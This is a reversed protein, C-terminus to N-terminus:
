PPLATVVWQQQSTPIRSARSCSSLDGRNKSSRTVDSATAFPSCAVGGALHASREPPCHERALESDVPPSLDVTFLRVVSTPDQEANALEAYAGATDATSKSGKKARTPAPASERGREVAQAMEMQPEAAPPAPSAPVPAVEAKREAQARQSAGARRDQRRAEGTVTEELRVSPASQKSPEDAMAAADDDSVVDSLEAVELPSAQGASRGLERNRVLEPVFVVAVLAVAATLGAFEWSLFRFGRAPRKRTSEEFRARTRTYFGPSLEAPDDRLARGLEKSSEVRAALETDDRLLAEFDARAADSLRGDLYDQLTEDTVDRKM